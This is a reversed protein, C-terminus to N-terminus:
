PVESVREPRFGTAREEEEELIIIRPTVMILLSEINRGYGVNKFLRNIYPIKSLVPPGFESREESLRKLGGMVVTGGDPVAVTTGVSISSIVPQQIFQTFTVPIGDQVNVTPYIPVAIPFTPTPSTAFNTLSPSVSMRVFRHDASIVAQLTLFVGGSPVQNNTPVLAVNGNALQALTVNSVYFQTDTVSLTATQGNFLTIKPAQMINTRTDGQIAELFLFVQIDDLFALGMALGGTGTYGGFAPITEAFSSTKIPFNLDSTLTGAATLGSFFHEPNFKNIFGAPTFTSNLLQAQYKLTNTPNVINMNFDLGIREFFDENISIFRVEIAVEQDQLRRLANLLDQVQELLDPTQNIVLSMTLPHYDITGPGGQDIWSKPAVTTTILKILQQEMTKTPKHGTMTSVPSGDGYGSGASAFNSSGPSPTGVPTGPPNVSLAGPIVAPGYPPTASPQQAVQPLTVQNPGGIEGFNEIPIVLEAVPYARTELKGRALSETTIVLAEDQITHFLHPGRLILNLASKLSVRDLRITVPYEPSIGADALAQDDLVINISGLGALDKVVDRLPTQSFNISLPTSLRREIDREAESRHLSTIDFRGSRKKANNSKDPDVYIDNKFAGPPGPNEADDLVQVVIDEKNHQIKKYEKLNIQRRAIELMAPFLANDPDLEHGRSAVAVAETYKGEKYMANYSVTLESIKKQKNEEAKARNAIKDKGAKVAVEGLDKFESQTKLIRFQQLRSEVPRRLLSLQNPDLDKSEKSEGLRAIYDQLMDIAVDTQGTRFKQAAEQQVTLGENRLKQFAIQRMAEANKLLNTEHSDTARATGPASPTTLPDPGVPLEKAASGGPGTSPVDQGKAVVQRTGAQMEPTMMYEKMRTRRGQDLLRADVTAFLNGAFSYDRRNFAQVAADFSKLAELRKRNFEETDIDRLLATAEEMVGYQPQYAEEALQRASALKDCRLELRAKELLDRGRANPQPNAPAALDPRSLSPGEGPRDGVVGGRLQHLRELQGDIERTDYGFAAALQRAQLLEAEGKQYRTQVDEKGAGITSNAHDTMIGVRQRVQVSLLQMAADPGDEDPGFTAGVRQAEFFKQRAAVLRNARQLQRGESMLQRATDKKAVSPDAPATGGPPATPIAQADGPKPAGAAAALSTQVIGSSNTGPKDAPGKALAADTPKAPPHEKDKAKAARIDSLVKQPRDGLDWITYPGHLKEARFAAKEANEYDKQAVLRRADALAKVADEQDRKIRAKDVEAQLKDPTDEFMGWKAATITKARVTTQAAEDIKGEALLARGQKLLAVAEEKPDGKAAGEKNGVPAKGKAEARAIEDQIKEPNDELFSLDPKLQRAQDNLKRALALDGDQMAKRAQKLLERAKETNTAASADQPKAATTVAQRTQETPPGNHARAAQVDKLVKAPTDGWLSFSWTSSARESLQAYQEARDLDNHQLAARAAALLTKADTRAKALDEKVKAPTDENKAYNTHCAEAERILAEAAEFNYQSLQARAQQLKLRAGEVPQGAGSPRVPLKLGLQQFRVKDTSSLYQENAALKKHLDVAEALRGEIMAKEIQSLRDAGERRARLAVANEAQIRSLEEQETDTLDARRATAEQFLTAAVEYDGRRYSEIAGSLAVHAQSPRGSLPAAPRLEQARAAGFFGDPVVGLGLPQAALGALLGAVLQVWRRAKARAVRAEKVIRRRQGGPAIGLPSPAGAHIAEGSEM